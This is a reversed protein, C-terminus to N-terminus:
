MHALKTIKAITLTVQDPLYTDLPREPLAGHRVGRRCVKESVLLTLFIAVLILSVVLALVPWYPIFM